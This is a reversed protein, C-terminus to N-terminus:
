RHHLLSLFSRRLVLHCCVFSHFYVIALYPIQLFEPTPFHMCVCLNPPRDCAGVSFSISGKTQKALHWQIAGYRLWAPLFHSYVWLSRRESSISWDELLIAVMWSGATSTALLKMTITCLLYSSIVVATNPVVHAAKVSVMYPLCSFGPIFTVTVHM